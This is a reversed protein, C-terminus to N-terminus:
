YGRNRRGRESDGDRSIFIKGRIDELEPPFGLIKGLKSGMLLYRIDWMVQDEWMDEEFKFEAWLVEFSDGSMPKEVSPTVIVDSHTSSLKAGQLTSTIWNHIGRVKNALTGPPLNSGKMPAIRISNRKKNLPKVGLRRNWESTNEKRETVVIPQRFLTSPNQVDLENLWCECGSTCAFFIARAQCKKLSIGSFLIEPTVPSSLFVRTYRERKGLSFGFGPKIVMLRSKDGTVLRVTLGIDGTNFWLLNGKVGGFGSSVEVETELNLTLHGIIDSDLCIEDKAKDVLGKVPEQIPYSVTDRKSESLVAIPHEGTKRCAHNLKSMYEDLSKFAEFKESLNWVLGLKNDDNAALERTCELSMVNVLRNKSGCLEMKRMKAEVQVRRNESIHLSKKLVKVASRLAKIENVLSTEKDKVPSPSDRGVFGDIDVFKEEILDRAGRLKGDNLVNQLLKSTEVKPISRPDTVGKTLPDVEMNTASLDGNPQMGNEERASGGLVQNHGAVDVIPPTPLDCPPVWHSADVSKVFNLEEKRKLYVILRRQLEAKSVKSHWKLNLEERLKHLQSLNMEMIEVVLEAGTKTVLSSGNQRPEYFKEKPSCVPTAWDRRKRKQRKEPIGFSRSVNNVPLSDLLNDKELVNSSFGSHDDKKFVESIAQGTKDKKEQRQFLSHPNKSSICGVPKSVQAAKDPGNSSVLISNWSNCNNLGQRISADRGSIMTPKKYKWGLAKRGWLRAVTPDTRIEAFVRNWSRALYGASNFITSGPQNFRKANSWVLKMDKDFEFINSYELNDLKRRITGLDLPNKIIKPYLPLKLKEWDVHELFRVAEPMGMFERLRSKCWDWLREAEWQLDTELNSTIKPFGCNKKQFGSAVVSSSDHKLRVFEPNNVRPNNVRRSNSPNTGAFQKELNGDGFDLKVRGYGRDKVRYENVGGSCSEAVPHRFRCRTGRQCRGKRWWFCIAKRSVKGGISKNRPEPKIHAYKKLPTGCAQSTLSVNQSWWELRSLILKQLEQKRIRKPLELQLEWGLRRLQDIRLEKIGEIDVIGDGSLFDKITLRSPGTKKKKKM